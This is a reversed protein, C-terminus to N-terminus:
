PCVRFIPVRKPHLIVWHMYPSGLIYIQTYIVYMYIYIYTCINCIYIYIAPGMYINPIQNPCIGIHSSASFYVLVQISWHKREYVEVVDHHNRHYLQALYSPFGLIIHM